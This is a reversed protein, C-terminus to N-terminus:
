ETVEKSVRRFREGAAFNSLPYRAVHTRRQVSVHDRGVHLVEVWEGEKAGDEYLQGVAPADTTTEKM